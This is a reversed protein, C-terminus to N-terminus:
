ASTRQARCFAAAEKYSGFAAADAGEPYRCVWVQNGSLRTKICETSFGNSFQVFGETRITITAQTIM